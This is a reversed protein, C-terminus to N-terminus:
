KKGGKKGGKKNDEKAPAPAAQQQQKPEQAKGGKKEPVPKQEQAPAPAPAPVAQKKDQKKGMTFKLHATPSVQSKSPSLWLSGEPPLWATEQGALLLPRFSRLIADVV